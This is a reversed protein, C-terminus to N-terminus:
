MMNLVCVNITKTQKYICINSHVFIFEFQYFYFIKLILLSLCLLIRTQSFCNKVPIIVSLILYNVRYYILLFLSTKVANYAGPCLLAIPLKSLCGSASSFHLNDILNSHSGYARPAGPCSGLTGM